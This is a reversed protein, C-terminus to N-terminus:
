GRRGGKRAADDVRRRWEYYSSCVELSGGRLLIRDRWARRLSHRQKKVLRIARRQGCAWTLAGPGFGIRLSVIFYRIVIIPAGIVASHASAKTADAVGAAAPSYQRRSM